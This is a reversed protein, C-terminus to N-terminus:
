LRGAAQLANKLALAKAAVAMPNPGLIRIMPEKGMDGQDFILDPPPEGPKLLSAVGWALTGGERAKIDPPEQARDFSAARLHLLPALGAVGQFYKVNMASQLEPHTAMATLIVAAIHRSAGFEPPAPILLGHPSKVLRGPFAAV